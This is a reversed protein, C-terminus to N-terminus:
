AKVANALVPIAGTDNPMCLVWHGPAGTIQVTRFHNPTATLLIVIMGAWFTVKTVAWPKKYADAKFKDELLNHYLAWGWSFMLLLIIFFFIMIIYHTYPRIGDAITAFTQSAAPCVYLAADAAGAPITVPTLPMIQLGFSSALVIAAILVITLLMIPKM